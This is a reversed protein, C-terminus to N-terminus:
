GGFYEHAPTRGFTEVSGRGDPHLHLIGYATDARDSGGTMHPLTFYPIGCLTQRDALHHHGQLVVRVKGSREIWERVAAANRVAFREDAPADLRQHCFLAVHGSAASLTRDLWDLVAPPVTADTYNIHGQETDSGDPRFCADLGVLTWGHLPLTWCATDPAPGGSLIRLVERKNLCDLEHNGVVHMVPGLFRGLMRVAQDLYEAARAPDPPDDQDKLDGMQVVAHCHARIFHETAEALKFASARYCRGKRDPTDAYHADALWGIRLTNM